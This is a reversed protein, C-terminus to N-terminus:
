QLECSAVLIVSVMSIWDKDLIMSFGVSEEVCVILWLRVRVGRGGWYTWPGDVRDISLLDNYNNHRVYSVHDPYV